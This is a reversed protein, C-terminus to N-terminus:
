PHPAFFRVDELRRLEEYGFFRKGSFTDTTEVDADTVADIIYTRNNTLFINGVKCNERIKRIRRNELEEAVIHRVTVLEEDTLPGPHFQLESKEVTPWHLPFAGTNNGLNLMLSSFDDSVCASVCDRSPQEWVSSLAEHHYEWQGCKRLYAGIYIHDDTHTIVVGRTRTVDVEVSTGPYNYLRVREHFYKSVCGTLIKVHEEGPQGYQFPQISKCKMTTERKEKPCWAITSCARDGGPLTVILESMDDGVTAGLCAPETKNAAYMTGEELYTWLGVVKQFVGVLVQEDLTRISVIRTHSPDVTFSTCIDTRTFTGGEGDPFSDRTTRSMIEILKSASAPALTNLTKVPFTTDWGGMELNWQVPIKVVKGETDCGSYQRVLVHELFKTAGIIETYLTKSAFNEIRFPGHWVNGIRRFAGVVFLTTEERVYLARDPTYKTITERFGGDFRESVLGTANPDNHNLISAVEFVKGAPTTQHVIRKGQKQKQM